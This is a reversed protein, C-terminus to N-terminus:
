GKRWANPDNIRKDIEDYRQNEKNYKLKAIGLKGNRNKGIIVSVEIEKKGVNKEHNEDYLLLVTTASQELEGSEKLDSIKPIQKEKSTNNEINRNLQSVLFITCNYNLSIQRLEKVISTVREYNNKENSGILGVYDIFVLTHEQKTEAIIKRRISAITQGQNIVKIRKKSINNCGEKIKEEQYTTEPECHYKMPIGTNIAVLRQYVQKEAMEMNFLICNYRDSMDELLNLVFGSKGIGTRAGIVVLDHEQINSVTSLGNFRFPINKNTSNILSFIENGSLKHESTNINLNEYKHINSFLEEQSIQQNKFQEISNLINNEIYRSFLTEQYYDLNDIPLSNSLISTLKPIITQADFKENFLHKYNQTLVSINITQSDAYQQKLLKFIFRNIPELFCEDPIVIQKISDPHYLINGIFDEEIQYDM